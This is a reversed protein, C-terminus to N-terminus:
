RPTMSWYEPDDELRRQQFLDSKRERQERRKRQNEKTITWQKEKEAKKAAREAKREQAAAFDAHQKLLMKTNM